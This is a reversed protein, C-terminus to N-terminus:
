RSPARLACCEREVQHIGRFVCPEWLIDDTITVGAATRAYYCSRWSTASSRRTSYWCGYYNGMGPTNRGYWICVSAIPLVDQVAAYDESFPFVNVKEGNLELVYMNSGACCTDTHSNLLTHKLEFPTSSAEAAVLHIALTDVDAV